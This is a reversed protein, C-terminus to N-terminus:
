KLSEEFGSWAKLTLTQWDSLEALLEPEAQSFWSVARRVYEDLTVGLREAHAVIRHELKEDVTITM